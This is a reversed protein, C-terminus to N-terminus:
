RRRPCPVATHASSASADIFTFSAAFRFGGRPCSRPLGVGAPHYAVTRGRVREYYTLHGGLTLHMQVVAVYPAAPLSPIPPVVISLHGTMLVGSMVIQADVPFIGDAYVLIHVSGDSSPGAFVTIGVHEKVLEPGIPVEVTAGGDGMRSNAPCASPGAAELASPSCVALGLGSTAFGLNAPYALQVETLGVPNEGAGTIGFTFSVATPAGLREPTLAASMTATPAALVADPTCSCLALLAAALILAGPV